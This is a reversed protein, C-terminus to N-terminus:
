SESGVTESSEEFRRENDARSASTMERRTKWYTVMQLSLEGLALLIALGMLYNLSPFAMIGVANGAFIMGTVFVLAIILMTRLALRGKVQKMQYSALAQEVSRTAVERFSTMHERISSVDVPARPIPPMAPVDPEQTTTNSASTTASSGTTVPLSGSDPLKGGHQELYSEIFSKPAKKQIEASRREPGGHPMNAKRRESPAEDEKKQLLSNLYRAVSNRHEEDAIQSPTGTPAHASTDEEASETHTHGPGSDSVSLDSKPNSSSAHAVGSKSHLEFLEALESRLASAASSGTNEPESDAGAESIDPISSPIQPVILTRQEAIVSLSSDQNSLSAESRDPESEVSSRETWSDIAQSALLGVPVPTTPADFRTSEASVDFSASTPSPSLDPRFDSQYDALDRRLESLNRRLTDEIEDNMSNLTANAVPDLSAPSFRSSAPEFYDESLLSEPDFPGEDDLQAAISPAKRGAASASEDKSPEANAPEAQDAAEAPLAQALSAENGTEEPKAEEEVPAEQVAASKRQKWYVYGAAALGPIVCIALIWAAKQVGSQPASVKMSGPTTIRGAEPPNPVTPQNRSEGGAGLNLSNSEHGSAALALEPKWGQADESQPGNPNSKDPGAAVSSGAVTSGAATAGAAPNNPQKVAETKAVVPGNLSPPDVPPAPIIKRGPGRPSNNGSKSTEAVSTDVQKSPSAGKAPLSDSGTAAKDSTSVPPVPTAEPGKVLAPEAATRVEPTAPLENQNAVRVFSHGFGVLDDKDTVSVTLDFLFATEFDPSHGEAVSIEGTVPDIRFMSDRNGGVINFRLTEGRDMDTAKVTGVATGAPSNEKVIFESESIEAAEPVDLIDIQIRVTHSRHSLEKLKEASVGEELLSSSFQAAYPDNDEVLTKEARVTLTAVKSKEYNLAQPKSVSIEGTSKDVSFGISSRDALIEFSTGAPFQDRLTGVVFGKARNEQVEWNLTSIEEKSSEQATVHPWTLGVSLLWAAIALVHRAVSRRAPHSDSNM